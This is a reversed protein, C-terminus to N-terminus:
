RGLLIIVGAMALMLLLAALLLVVETRRPRPPPGTPTSAVEIPEAEPPGEVQEPLAEGECRALVVSINDYGGNLKAQSTLTRALTRLDGAGARVIEALTDAAVMDTLGDTCLLLLDDRCLDMRGISPYVRENVGLAQLIVNSHEYNAAEEPSLRGSAVLESALSQDETVQVLEGDRLVYARSDGVQVIVAQDGLVGAATLTTGMGSCGSDTAARDRIAAHAQVTAAGLAEALDQLNEVPAERVVRLLVERGLASAVDGSAAGGMGDFVALVVGREGVDIEEDVIQTAFRTPDTDIAALAEASTLTDASPDPPQDGEVSDEDSPEPDSDSSDADDDSPEPDSDFSDADDDSPEPDSDSSDADDDSPEPDNDSSDADDDSPEPDSDSSDADDDSLEPDNDSSDADDDSPEPDSDSSDADDDSPEPDSDSSDADDDSPEPDSDSSDADDDSPEPDSDLPDPEDDSSEHASSLDAIVLTDENRERVLGVDTAGLARLKIAM